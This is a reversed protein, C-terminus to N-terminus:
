FKLIIYIVFFPATFVASDFRDLIGGHGPMIKGSDKIKLTRKFMSEVLDGLVAGFSVIVSLIIWDYIKLIDFIYFIAVSVLLTVVGGGITGEWTKKPSIREFFLNKGMLSGVFYAGIDYSWILIFFGAFIKYTYENNTVEPFVLLSFLSFPIAIYIIGLFTYALNELSKSKKFLEIAFIPFILAPLIFVLKTPILNQAFLYTFIFLGVSFIIAIIKHPKIQKQEFLTYFEWLAIVMFLSFVIAFIIKHIFIGVVFILLFIAASLIRQKLNKSNM